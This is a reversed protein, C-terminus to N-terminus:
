IHRIIEFVPIFFTGEEAAKRTKLRIVEPLSIEGQLIFYLDQGDMGIMNTSRGKSFAELGDKSYGNLSIFLGRTWKTKGDVKGFFTLLESNGILSEQWKAEVLYTNGDCMFSGDIQEGTLKFSSRPELNFCEFLDGLFKEFAFGRAQSNSMTVLEQFRQNLQNVRIDDFVPSPSSAAKKLSPDLRYVIEFAIPPLNANAVDGSYIDWNTFLNNLLKAVGKNTAHEWFSRMRNAKSTGYNSFREDYIDIDFEDKFLRAFSANSFNLCYGNQMGLIGELFSKEANKLDSM